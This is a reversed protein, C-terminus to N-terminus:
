KLVVAGLLCDINGITVTDNYDDTSMKKRYIFPSVILSAFHTFYNCLQM